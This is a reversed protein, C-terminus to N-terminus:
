QLFLEEKEDMLNELKKSQMFVSISLTLDLIRLAVWHGQGPGLISIELFMEFIADCLIIFLFFLSAWFFPRRCKRWDSRQRESESARRGRFQQSAPISGSRTLYAPSMDTAEFQGVSIGSVFSIGRKQANMEKEMHDLVKEFNFFLYLIMATVFLIKTM